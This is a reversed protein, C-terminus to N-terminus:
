KKKDYAEVYAKAKALKDTRGLMTDNKYITYLGDSGQIKYDGSKIVRPTYGGKETMKQDQVKAWKRTPTLNKIAAKDQQTQIEKQTKGTGQIQKQAQELLKLQKNATEKETLAEKLQTANKLSKENSKSLRNIGAKDTQGAGLPFNDAMFQQYQTPTRAKDIQNDLKIIKNKINKIEAKIQIENMNEIFKANTAKIASAGSSAGKSSTAGRGGM